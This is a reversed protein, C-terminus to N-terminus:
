PKIGWRLAVITWALILLIGGWFSLAGGIVADAVARTNGPAASLVSYGVLGWGTGGVFLVTGAVVMLILPVNPRKVHPTVFVVNTMPVRYRM